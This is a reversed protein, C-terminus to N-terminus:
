NFFFRNFDGLAACQSSSDHQSTKLKLIGDRGTINLFKSKRGKITFLCFHVQPSTFRDKRSEEVVNISSQLAHNSNTKWSEKRSVL